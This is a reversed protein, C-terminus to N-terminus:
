FRPISRRPPRFGYFRFCAKIDAAGFGQLTKKIAFRRGGDAGLSEMSNPRASTPTRMPLHTCSIPREGMLSRSGQGGPPLSDPAPPMAPPPTHAKMPGGM